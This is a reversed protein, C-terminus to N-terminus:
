TEIFLLWTATTTCWQTHQPHHSQKTVNPQRRWIATTSPSQLRRINDTTASWEMHHLEWHARAAAAREKDTMPPKSLAYKKKTVKARKSTNSMHSNQRKTRPRFFAERVDRQPYQRASEYATSTTTVKTKISSTAPASIESTELRCKGCWQM